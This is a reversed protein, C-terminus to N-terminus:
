LEDQAPIVVEKIIILIAAAVPIAILAGLLGLLTGGTLAAIVVVPGPVKVATAMIRPSLVYSEIQMYIVYYIALIWWVNSNAPMMLLQMLVIVVSASLTGVLPILSGFFAVLAFIAPMSAGLISLIAFTLVGNVLGLGIQGMVYKGVSSTIKETLDALRPRRSAPALQYFTRKLSNMSSVFYLTLIFVILTGFLGNVISFGVQLVGGGITGANDRLWLLGDSVVQNVNLWPFTRNAWGILDSALIDNVIITYRETLSAVQETVSPVMAWILLALIGFVAVLSTLMALWRPWRHRELFAILPEFGLALFLAAGVYTLVTGLQGVISGLLVASLVGLTAVFGLRFPNEVRM